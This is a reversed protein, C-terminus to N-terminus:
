LRTSSHARISISNRAHSSINHGHNNINSRGRSNISNRVRNDKRGLSTASVPTEKGRGM